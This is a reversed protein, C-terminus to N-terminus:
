PPTRISSSMRPLSPEEESVSDDSQDYNIDQASGRLENPEILEILEILENPLISHIINNNDQKIETRDNDNSRSGDFSF